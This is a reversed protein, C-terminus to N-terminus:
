ASRPGNRRRSPRDCRIRTRNYGARILRCCSLPRSEPSHRPRSRCGSAEQVRFHIANRRAVCVVPQHPWGATTRPCAYRIVTRRYAQVSLTSLSTVSRVLGSFPAMAGCRLVAPLILDRRLGGAAQGAGGRRPPRGPRPGTALAAVGTAGGGPRRIQRDGIARRVADPRGPAM